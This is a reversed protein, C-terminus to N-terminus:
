NCTLKADYGFPRDTWSPDVWLVVEAGDSTANKVRFTMKQGIALRVRRTSLATNDSAKYAGVIATKPWRKGKNWVQFVSRGPECYAKIEIDVKGGPAADDISLETVTAKDIAAEGDVAAEDGGAATAFDALSATLTEEALCRTVALRKNVQDIYTELGGGSLTLGARRIVASRGSKQISRLVAAQKIWREIYVDWDGKYRRAVIQRILDHNLGPWWSVKPFDGCGTSAAHSTGPIVALFILALVAAVVMQTWPFWM